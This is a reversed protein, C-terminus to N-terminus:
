RLKSMLLPTVLITVPLKGHKKLGLFCKPWKRPWNELIDSDVKIPKSMSEKFAPLYGMKILAGQRQWGSKLLNLLKAVTKLSTKMKSSRDQKSTQSRIHRRLEQPEGTLSGLKDVLKSYDMLSSREKLGTEYAADLVVMSDFNNKCQLMADYLVEFAQLRENQLGKVSKAKLLGEALAFASAIVTRQQNFNLFIECCMVTNYSIHAWHFNEIVINTAKSGSCNESSVCKETNTMIPCSEFIRWVVSRTKLGRFIVFPLSWERWQLAFLGVFQLYTVSTFTWIM